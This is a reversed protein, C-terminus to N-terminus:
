ARYHVKKNELKMHVNNALQQTLVGIEKCLKALVEIQLSEVNIENIEFPGKVIGYLVTLRMIEFGKEVPLPRITYTKGDITIDKTVAFIKTM